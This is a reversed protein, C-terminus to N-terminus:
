SNLQENNHLHEKFRRSNKWKLLKITVLVYRNVLYSIIFVDVLDPIKIKQNIINAIISILVITTIASFFSYEGDTPELKQNEM